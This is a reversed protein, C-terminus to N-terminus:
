RIEPYPFRYALLFGQKLTEEVLLEWYDKIESMSPLENTVRCVAGAGTPQFNHREDKTDLILRAHGNKGNSVKAPVFSFIENKKFSKGQYFGYGSKSPDTLLNKMELNNERLLYPFSKINKAIDVQSYRKGVVFITDVLFKKDDNRESGFIIISGESLNRISRYKQRCHTFWFNEGFIFPDTTQKKEGKYSSDFFPYHILRPGYYDKSTESIVKFKSQAEWEGWFTLKGNLPQKNINKIYEVGEMCMFKRKHRKLTNWPRTGSSKSSDWDMGRSTVILKGTSDGLLPHEKGPHALQIIKYTM